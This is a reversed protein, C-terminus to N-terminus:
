SFEVIVGHRKFYSQMMRRGQRTNQKLRAPEVIVTKQPGLAKKLEAIRLDIDENDNHL